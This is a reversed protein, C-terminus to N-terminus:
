NQQKIKRFKAPLMNLHRQFFLEFGRSSSFGCKYSIEAITLTTTQLYKTAANLRVDSLNQAFSKNTYKLLIRNVHTKSYNLSQALDDITVHKSYNESFFQDIYIRQTLSDNREVITFHKISKDSLFQEAIYSIVNGFCNKIRFGNLKHSKDSFNLHISSINQFIENKIKKTPNYLLYPEKHNIDLKEKFLFRFSFRKLNDSCSIVKHETNPAIIFIDHENLKIEDMNCQLLLTGSEIFYGEYMTHTHILYSSQKINKFMNLYDIRADINTNDVKFTFKLHEIQM